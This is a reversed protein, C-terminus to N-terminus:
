PAFGPPVRRATYSILIRYLGSLFVDLDEFSDSQRAEQVLYYAIKDRDETEKDEPRDGMLEFPLFEQCYVIMFRLADRRDESLADVRRNLERRHCSTLTTKGIAEASAMRNMDSIVGMEGFIQGAGIVDIEVVDGGERKFLRIEGEHVLYAEGARDGEKFILEGSEYHRRVYDGEM